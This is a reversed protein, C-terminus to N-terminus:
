SELAYLRVDGNGSSCTLTPGGDGLRGTISRRGSEQDTLEVESEVDGNGVSLDV